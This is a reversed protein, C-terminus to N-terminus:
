CGATRTSANWSFSTPAHRLGAAADFDRAAVPDREGAGPLPRRGVRVLPHFDAHEQAPGGAGGELAVQGGALHGWGGLPTVQRGLLEGGPVAGVRFVDAQDLLEGGLVSEVDHLDAQGAARHAEAAGQGRHGRRESGVQVGVVM